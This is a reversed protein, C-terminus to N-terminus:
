PMNEVKKVAREGIKKVISDSSYGMGFAAIRALNQIEGSMQDFDKFHAFLTYAVIASITSIAIALPRSRVYPVVCLAAKEGTAAEREKAWEQADGLVHLVLGLMALVFPYSILYIFSDLYTILGM